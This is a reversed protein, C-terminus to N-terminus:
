FFTEVLFVVFNLMSESSSFLLFCVQCCSDICTKMHKVVGHKTFKGSKIGGRLTVNDKQDLHTCTPLKVTDIVKATQDKNNVIFYQFVLFNSIIDSLICLINSFLLAFVEKTSFFSYLECIFHSKARCKGFFTLYKSPKEYLSWM